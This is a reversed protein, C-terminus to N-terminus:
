GLHVVVGLSGRHDKIVVRSCHVLYRCGAGIRSVGRMKCCISTLSRENMAVPPDSMPPDHDKLAYDSTRMAASGFPFCHGGIGALKKVFAYSAARHESRLFSIT